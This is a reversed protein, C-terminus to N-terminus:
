KAILIGPGYIEYVNTPNYQSTWLVKWVPQLPLDWLSVHLKNPYMKIMSIELCSCTGKMEINYLIHVQLIYKSHIVIKNSASNSKIM